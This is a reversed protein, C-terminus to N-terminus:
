TEKKENFIRIRRTANQPQQDPIQSNIKRILKKARNYYRDSVYDLDLEEITSFMRGILRIDDGDLEFKM